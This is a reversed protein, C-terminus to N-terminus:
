FSVEVGAGLNVFIGSGGGGVANAGHGQADTTFGGLDSIGGVAFGAQASASLWDRVPYRARYELQAGGYIWWTDVMVATPLTGGPFPSGMSEGPGTLLIIRAIAVNQVPGLTFAALRVGVSSGIAFHQGITPVLLFGFDVRNFALEARMLLAPGAKFVADFVGGTHIPVLLDFLFGVRRPPIIRPSRPPAPATAGRPALPSTTSTSDPRPTRPPAAPEESPVGRYWREPEAEQPASPARPAGETYWREGRIERLRADRGAAPPASALPLLNTIVACGPLALGWMAFAVCALYRTIALKLPRDTM